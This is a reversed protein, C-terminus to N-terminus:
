SWREVPPYEDRVRRWDGDECVYIVESDKKIAVPVGLEDGICYDVWIWCADLDDCVEGSRETNFFLFETDEDRLGEWLVHWGARVPVAYRRDLRQEKGSPPGYPDFRDWSSGVDVGEISVSIDSKCNPHDPAHGFKSWWDEWSRVTTSGAGDDDKEGFLWGTSIKEIQEAIAKVYDETQSNPDMGNARLKGLMEEVFDSRTKAQPGEGRELSEVTVELFTCHSTAMGIQLIKDCLTVTQRQSDVESVHWDKGLYKVHQGAEYKM